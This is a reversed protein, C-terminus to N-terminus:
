LNIIENTQIKNNIILKVDYPEDIVTTEDKKLNCSNCIVSKARVKYEISTITDSGSTRKIIYNFDDLAFSNNGAENLLRFDEKRLFASHVNKYYKTEYQISDVYLNKISDYAYVKLYESLQTNIQILILDETNYVPCLRKTCCGGVTIALISIIVCKRM